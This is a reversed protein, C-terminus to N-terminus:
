PRAPTVPEKPAGNLAATLAVAPHGAPATLAPTTSATPLSHDDGAAGAPPQPRAARDFFRLLEVPIPM